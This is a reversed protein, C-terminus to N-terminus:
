GGGGGGGGGGGLGGLASACDAGCKSTICTFVSLIGALNAPDGGGCALACQIDIGGGGGGLCMQVVCQLTTRCTTDTICTLVQQGCSQAICQGCNVLPNGEPGVDVPGDSAGGDGNNAGDGAGDDGAGDVTASADNVYEIVDIDLPGRSGCAVITLTLSVGAGCALM